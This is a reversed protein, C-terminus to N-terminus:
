SIAHRLVVGAGSVIIYDTWPLPYEESERARLIVSVNRAKVRFSCHNRSPSCIEQNHHQIIMSNIEFGYSSTRGRIWDLVFPLRRRNRPHGEERTGEPNNWDGRGLAWHWLYLRDRRLM